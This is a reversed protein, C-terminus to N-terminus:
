DSLISLHKSAQWLSNRWAPTVSTADPGETSNYLYPAANIIYPRLKYDVVWKELVSVLNAKGEETEFL